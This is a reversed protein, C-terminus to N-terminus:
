GWGRARAVPKTTYFPDFARAMVEASMGHGTDTVAIQVYQGAPVGLHEASYHSDLHANVTEITLRGGEPM